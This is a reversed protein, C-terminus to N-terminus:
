MAGVTHLSAATIALQYLIATVDKAYQLDSITDLKMPVVITDGKFVENDDGMFYSNTVRFAEGNAKVLYIHEDDAMDNLGGAKEIYDHVLLKPQYVFTNPNLVEGVVTVTDSMTPIYLTDGDQLTIDYPSNKFRNIDFYLHISIRGIPKINEAKKELQKVVQLMRMKDEPREGAETASGSIQLSRAKLKEISEKIREEQLKRVSERTFVAGEIFANETLGGARAIVSSLKEGDEIAYKGPFKVQGKLIVYKKEGWNAISMIKVEDDPYIKLHKRLADRLSLSLIQRYRREGKKSYRAIEFRTYLAKRTLGGALKILHNITTISGIEYTGPLFVEGKITATLRNVTKEYKYFTVKDYPKLKFKGDFYADKTISLLKNKVVRQITVKNSPIVLTSNEDLTDKTFKVISFLDDLSMDKTYIYKQSYGSVVEGEVYIYPIKGLEEQSFIHVEDGASLFHEERGKLVRKLNFAKVTDITKIVGYDYVTGKKFFGRKGFAKLERKLLTSLRRDKPLAREGEAVINGTISVSNTSLDSLKYVKVIDGNKPILNKLTNYSFTSVKIHQNALYRKLTIINKNAYPTLGSAFNFLDEFKEGDKLEYIAPINVEGKLTVEKKIPPVYIVDGNKLPIDSTTDGYRILAYLDFTSYITGDRKLQINRYSGNKLLGGSVILADKITSFTTLNYLGPISVLGSVTVQIPSFQLIDVIINTSTPYARKCEQIIKDKADKYSLGAIQINGVQPIIVNGNRDVTLTFENPEGGFINVSLKDGKSLIYNSPTPISYPNLKNKNKFFQSGYRQLKVAKKKTIIKDPTAQVVVPKIEVDNKVESPVAEKVEVAGKKVYGYQKLLQKQAQTLGQSYLISFSLLLFWIYRM